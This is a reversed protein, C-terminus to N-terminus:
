RAFRLVLIALNWILGVLDVLLRFGFIMALTWNLQANDISIFQQTKSITSIDFVLYLLFLITSIGIIMLYLGDGGFTGSLSSVITAIMFVFFMIFFVISLLGIFKGLNITANASLAKGILSAIVFAVGGAAFIFVLYLIGQQQNFQVMFALFLIGFGLGEAVIYILWMSWILPRSVQGRRTFLKVNVVMSIIMSALILIISFTWLLNISSNLQDTGLSKYLGMAIAFGILAIAIFGMGSYLMSRNLLSIQTSNLTKHRVTTNTNPNIDTYDSVNVNDIM